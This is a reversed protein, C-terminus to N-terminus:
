SKVFKIFKSNDSLETIAKNINKIMNPYDKEREKIRTHLNAIEEPDICIGVNFRDIFEKMAAMHSFCIIPLKASIYDFMKNGTTTMILIDKKAEETCPATLYSGYDYKRLEKIMEKHPLFGEYHFYPNRSSL